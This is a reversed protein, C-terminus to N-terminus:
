TTDTGVNTTDCAGGHSYQLNLTAINSRHQWQKNRERALNDNILYEIHLNNAM